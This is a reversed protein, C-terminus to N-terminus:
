QRGDTSPVMMVVRHSNCTNENKSATQSEGVTEKALESDDGCELLEALFKRQLENLVTPYHILIHNLLLFCTSDVLQHFSRRM